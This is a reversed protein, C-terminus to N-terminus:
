KGEKQKKAWNKSVERCRECNVLKKNIKKRGCKNCLGKSKWIERREKFNRWVMDVFKKRFEEDNNYRKKIYKSIYPHYKKTKERQEEKNKMKNFNSRIFMNNNTLSRNIFGCM